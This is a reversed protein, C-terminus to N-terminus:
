VKNKLATVTECISIEHIGDKLCQFRIHNLKNLRMILIRFAVNIIVTELNGSLFFMGLGLSVKSYGSLVSLVFSM